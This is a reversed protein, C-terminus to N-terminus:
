KIFVKLSIISGFDKPIVKLILQHNQSFINLKDLNMESLTVKRQLYIFKWILNFLFSSM